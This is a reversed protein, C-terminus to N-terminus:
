FCWIFYTILKKGAREQTRAIKWYDIVIIIVCDSTETINLFRLDTLWVAQIQLILKLWCSHLAMCPENTFHEDNNKIYNSEYFLRKNSVEHLLIM